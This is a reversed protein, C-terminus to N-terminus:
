GQRGIVRKERGSVLVTKPRAKHDYPDGPDKPRVAVIEDHENIGTAAADSAAVEAGEGLFRQRLAAIDVGAEDPEVSTHDVPAHERSVLEHGPLDREIIAELEQNSLRQM